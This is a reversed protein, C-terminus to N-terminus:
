IKVYPFSSKILKDIKPYLENLDHVGNMENLLKSPLTLTFRTVSKKFLATEGRSIVVFIGKREPLTTVLIIFNDADIYRINAGAGLVEKFMTSVASLAGAMLHEMNKKTQLEDLTKVKRFYCSTGGENFIMFSYIPFPILYLYDPHLIFNSIILLLGILSFILAVSTLLEYATEYFFLDRILYFLGYMILFMLGVSEVFIARTKIVKLEKIVTIIALLFVSFIMISTLFNSIRFFTFIFMDGFLRLETYYTSLSLGNLSMYIPIVLKSSVLFIYLGLLIILLSLRPRPHSIEEYHFFLFLIGLPLFSTMIMMIFLNNINFGVATNAIAISVLTAM